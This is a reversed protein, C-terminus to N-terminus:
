GSAQPRGLLTTSTVVAPTPGPAAPAAPAESGAADRLMWRNRGVNEIEGAEKMRQLNSQLNAIPKAGHPAADRHELYALIATAHTPEAQQGLFERVSRSILGRPLRRRQSTGAPRPGSRRVPRATPAAAVNSELALLEEVLRRKADLRELEAQIVALEAQLQDAFQAAM